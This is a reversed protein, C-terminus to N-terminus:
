KETEAKIIDYQKDYLDYKINSSILYLNSQNTVTFHQPRSSNRTSLRAARM